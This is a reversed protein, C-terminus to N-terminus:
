HNTQKELDDTAMQFARMCRASYNTLPSIELSDELGCELAVAKINQLKMRISGRSIHPLKLYIREILEKVGYDIENLFVYELYAKCCVYDDELSWRHKGM